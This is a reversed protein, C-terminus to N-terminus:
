PCSLEACKYYLAVDADPNDETELYYFEVDLTREERNWVAEPVTFSDYLEWAKESDLTVLLEELEDPPFQSLIVGLEHSSIPKLEVDETFKLKTRGRCVRSYNARELYYHETYYGEYDRDYKHIEGDDMAGLAEIGAEITEHESVIKDNEDFIGYEVM